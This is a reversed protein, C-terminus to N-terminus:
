CARWSGGPRGRRRCRQPPRREVLQAAEGVDHELRPEVLARHPQVAGVVEGGADGLQAGRDDIQSASLQEPATSSRGSTAMPEVRPSGVLTSTPRAGGGGADGHEVRRPAVGVGDGLHGDGQQEGDGAVDHGAVAVHAGARHEAVREGVLAVPGPLQGPAGGAEDPEAGDSPGRPPPELAEAHPHDGAVREDGVGGVVEVLQQALGVDHRHVGRDRGVGSPIIPAAWNARMRAPAM